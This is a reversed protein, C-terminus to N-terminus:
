VSVYDGKKFGHVVFLCGDKILGPLSIWFLYQPILEFFSGEKHFVFKNLCWGGVFYLVLGVFFLILIVGAADVGGSKDNPDPVFPVETGCAAVTYMTFTFQCNDSGVTEEFYPPDADSKCVTYIKTSRKIGSPCSDADGNSYEILASQGPAAGSADSRSFKQTNLLGSSLYDWNDTRLCVSTDATWCASSSVGCFNFYMVNGNFRQFITDTGSSTDHYLPSFDYKYSKKQKNYSLTVVCQYPDDAVASLVVSLLVVAAFLARM